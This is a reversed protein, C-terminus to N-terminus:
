LTSVGNEKFEQILEEKSLGNNGFFLNIIAETFAKSQSYMLTNGACSGTVFGGSNMDVIFCIVTEAYGLHTKRFM